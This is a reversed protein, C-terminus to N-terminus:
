NYAVLELRLSGDELQTETIEYAGEVAAAALINETQYAQKFQDLQALKETNQLDDYDYSMQKSALDFQLPAYFSPLRVAWVDAGTSRATVRQPEALSLRRCARQLTEANDIDTMQATVRHSM